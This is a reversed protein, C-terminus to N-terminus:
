SSFDLLELFAKVKPPLFDKEPYIALLDSKPLHYDRLCHIIKGSNLENEVMFRPLCAMCTNELILKKSLEIQNTIINGNVTISIIQKNKTLIFERSKKSTGYVCFNHKELNEPNKPTGYKKLYSASACIINEFSGIKRAILNSSELKGSRLALDYGYKILDLYENSLDVEM